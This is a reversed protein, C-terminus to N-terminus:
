DAGFMSLQVHNKPVEALM